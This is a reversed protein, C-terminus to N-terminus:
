IKKAGVSDLAESAFDKSSKFVGNGSTVFIYIEQLKVEIGWETAVGVYPNVGLDILEGDDYKLTYGM